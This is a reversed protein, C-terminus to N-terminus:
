DPSLGVYHLLDPAPRDYQILWAEVREQLEKWRCHYRHLHLIEQKLKRWVKEIPNLWPAYTPLFVLTIKSSQLAALVDPQFHVPWNDLVIYMREARPYRAEVAHLYRLFTQYDFASRQWCILRGTYADLCGAIRRSTNYDTGQVARPADSGATAYDCYVTPCRYYTLEDQYLLVFRVPDQQVQQWAWRVQARKRLYAPDPSHV